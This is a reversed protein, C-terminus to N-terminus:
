GWQHLIPSERFDERRGHNIYPGPMPPSCTVRQGPMDRGTFSDHTVAHWGHRATGIFSLLENVNPGVGRPVKGAMAMQLVTQGIGTPAPTAPKSKGHAHIVNLHFSFESVLGHGQGLLGRYNKVVESSVLYIITPFVQGQFLVRQRIAFRGPRAFTM